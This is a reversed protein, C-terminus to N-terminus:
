RARTVYGFGRISKIEIPAEFIKKRLRSIQCDIVRQSVEIEEGWVNKKLEERSIDKEFNKLLFGLLRIENASLEEQVWDQNKKYSIQHTSYNIKFGPIQFQPQANQQPYSRALAFRIAKSISEPTYKDKVIYDQAGLRLSEIALAEDTMSTTVIIPVQAENAKLITKLTDLGSSDLVNLDLLILQPWRLGLYDVVELSSRCRDLEIKNKWGKELSRRVLQAELDDDELLLIHLPSDIHTAADM